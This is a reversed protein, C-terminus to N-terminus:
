NSGSRSDPVNALLGRIWCTAGAWAYGLVCGPITPNTHIHLAGTSSFFLLSRRPRLQLVVRRDGWIIVQMADFHTVITVLSVVQVEVEGHSITVMDIFRKDWARAKWVSVLPAKTDRRACLISRSPPLCNYLLLCCCGKGRWDVFTRVSEETSRTCCLLNKLVSLWLQWAM